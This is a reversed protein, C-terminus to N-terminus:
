KQEQEAICSNSFDLFGECLAKLIEFDSEDLSEWAKTKKIKTRRSLIFDITQSKLGNSNYRKAFVLTDLANSGSLNAALTNECMIRLGELCYKDAVILLDQALNELKEVKGTYIYSLMEEVVDEGIDEIHVIGKKETMDHAFKAAFVSSRGALIVKHVPYKKEGVSLVTDTFLQNKLLYGFDNSFSDM